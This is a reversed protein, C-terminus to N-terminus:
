YIFKYILNLILNTSDWVNIIENSDILQPTKVGFDHPILTYFKNTTMIVKERKNAEDPFDMISNLDSLLSYAQQLQKRSLKGLPM